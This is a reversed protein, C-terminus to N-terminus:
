SCRPRMLSIEMDQEVAEERKSVKWPFFRAIPHTPSSSAKVINKAGRGACVQLPVGTGGIHPTDPVMFLATAPTTATGGPIARTVTRTRTVMNQTGGAQAASPGIVAVTERTGTPPPGATPLLM